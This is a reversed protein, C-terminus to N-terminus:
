IHYLKKVTQQLNDYSFISTAAHNGRMCSIMPTPIRQQPRSDKPIEITTAFQSGRLLGTDLGAALSESKVRKGLSLDNWITRRMRRMRMMRGMEDKKKQLMARRVRIRWSTALHVLFIRSKCGCGEVWQVRQIQVGKHAPAEYPAIGKWVVM